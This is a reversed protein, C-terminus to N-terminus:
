EGRLIDNWQDKTKWPWHNKCTKTPCCCVSTGDRHTFKPIAKCEPCVIKDYVSAM